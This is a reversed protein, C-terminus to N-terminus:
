GWKITTLQEQGHRDRSTQALLQEQENKSMGACGWEDMSMGVQGQKNMCPKMQAQKYANATM